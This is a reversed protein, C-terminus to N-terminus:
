NTVARELCLFRMVCAVAAASTTSGCACSHCCWGAWGRGCSVVFADRCGGGKMFRCFGCTEQEDDEDDDEAEGAAPASSTPQEAAQAAM